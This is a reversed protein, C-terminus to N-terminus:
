ETWILSWIKVRAVVISRTVLSRSVEVTADQVLADHVQGAHVQAGKVPADQAEAETPRVGIITPVTRPDGAEVLSADVLRVVVTVLSATVLTVVRVNKAERM